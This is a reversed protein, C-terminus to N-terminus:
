RFTRGIAEQLRPCCVEYTWHREASASGTLRINSPSRGHVPCHTGRIRQEIGAEAKAIVEKELAKGFQSPSLKRRGVRFEIGPKRAM